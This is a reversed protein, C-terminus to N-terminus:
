DCLSPTWGLTLQLLRPPLHGASPAPTANHGKHSFGPDQPHQLPCIQLILGCCHHQPFLVIEQLHLEISNRVISSPLVTINDTTVSLDMRPCDKPIFPCETKHLNLKLHHATTWDLSQWINRFARQLTRTPPHRFLSSCNPTMQMVTTLCDM